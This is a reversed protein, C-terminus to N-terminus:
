ASYKRQLYGDFDFVTAVLKYHQDANGFRPSLSMCLIYDDGKNLALTKSAEGENPYQNALIRRTAPCTISINEYTTDSYDFKAVIKRKYARDFDNYDNSLTVEFNSPKILYLSQSIAGREDFDSTVINSDVGVENWIDATNEKLNPISEANLHSIKKWKVTDDIIYNEPQGAVSVKGKVTVEVIDLVKAENGDQYTFSATPLAGHGTGDDFVPRIWECVKVKREEVYEVRKGAICKGGPKYSKALLVM